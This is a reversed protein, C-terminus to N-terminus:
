SFYNNKNIKDMEMRIVKDRVDKVNEKEESKKDNYVKYLEIEKDITARDEESLRPTMLNMFETKYLEGLNSVMVEVILNKIMAGKHKYYLEQNPGYKYSKIIDQAELHRLTVSLRKEPTTKLTSEKEKDLNLKDVIEGFNLPIKALYLVELVDVQRVPM